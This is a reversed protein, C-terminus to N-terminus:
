KTVEIVKIESKFLTKFNFIKKLKKYFYIFYCKLLLNISEHVIISSIFNLNNFAVDTLIIKYKKVGFLIKFAYIKIKFNLKKITPAFKISTVYM